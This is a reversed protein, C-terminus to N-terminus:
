ASQDGGEEAPGEEVPGEAETQEAGRDEKANPKPADIRAGRQAEREAAQRAEERQKRVHDAQVKAWNPRGTIVEKPEGTRVKRTLPDPLIRLELRECRNRFYDREGRAESIDLEFRQRQLALEGNLAEIQGANFENAHELETRIQMFLEAHAATTRELIESAVRDARKLEDRSVIREQDLMKAALELDARMQLVLHNPFLTDFFDRLSKAISM